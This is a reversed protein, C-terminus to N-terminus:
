DSLLFLLLLQKNPRHPDKNIQYVGTKNGQVSNQQNPTKTGSLTHSCAPTFYLITKVHLLRSYSPITTSNSDISRWCPGLSAPMQKCEIACAIADDCVYVHMGVSDRARQADNGAM